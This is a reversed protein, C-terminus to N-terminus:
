GRAWGASGPPTFGPYRAALETEYALVDCRRQHALRARPSAPLDPHVARMEDSCVDRRVPADDDVEITVAPFPPRGTAMAM